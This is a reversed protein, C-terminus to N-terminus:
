KLLEEVTDFHVFLKENLFDIHDVLIPQKSSKLHRLQNLMNICDRVSGMGRHKDTYPMTEFLKYELQFSDLCTKILNEVLHGNSESIKESQQLQEIHEKVHVRYGQLRNIYQQINKGKM